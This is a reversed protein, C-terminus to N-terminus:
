DDLLENKLREVMQKAQGAFEDLKAQRRKTQEAEIEEFRGTKCESNPPRYKGAFPEAACEGLGFKAMRQWRRNGAHDM